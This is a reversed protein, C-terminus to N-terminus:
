ALSSPCSSVNSSILKPILSVVTFCGHCTAGSSISDNSLVRPSLLSYHPSYPFPSAECKSSSTPVAFWGPLFLNGRRQWNRKRLFLPSRWINIRWIILHQGRASTKTKECSPGFTVPRNALHLWPYVSVQAKLFLKNFFFINKEPFCHLCM